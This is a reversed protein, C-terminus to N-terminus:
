SGFITFSQMLSETGTEPDYCFHKHPPKIDSKEVKVLRRGRCGKAPKLVEAYPDFESLIKIYEKLIM